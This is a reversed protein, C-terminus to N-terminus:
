DAGDQERRRYVRVEYRSVGEVIETELEGTAVLRELQGRAASYSIGAGEALETATVDGPQRPARQQAAVLEALLEGKDIM